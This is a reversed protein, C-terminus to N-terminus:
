HRWYGNVWASGHAHGYGHGYGYGHGHGYGNDWHPAVWVAGRYPPRVWAGPVTRYGYGTWVSYAPVWVYGYAAYPPPPPPPAYVPVPPPAYVPPPPPAAVVVPAPIGIGIHVSFHDAANANAALMVVTGVALLAIRGRVM